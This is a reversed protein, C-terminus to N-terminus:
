IHNIVNNVIDTIIERMMKEVVEKEKLYKQHKKTRYHEVKHCRTYKGGCACNFKEGFYDKRHEAYEKKTRGGAIYKNVCTISEDTMAEEQHRGEERRLERKNNCPYNTILEITYNDDKIIDYSSKYSMKGNLYKKYDTEHRDLRKELTDYTSGIYIRGTNNCIIKYIKSNQYKPNIECESDSSSASSINNNAM